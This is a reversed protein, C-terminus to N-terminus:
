KLYREIQIRDLAEQPIENKIPFTRNKPRTADVIAIADGLWGRFSQVKNILQLDSDWWTRTVMAWLVERENYVDVDEDVVVAFKLNPMEIFAQM